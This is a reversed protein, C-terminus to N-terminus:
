AAFRRTVAQELVREIMPMQTESSFCRYAHEYGARGMAARLDGDLALMGIASALADADKPPVLCGTTGDVVVEPIGGVTTAVTPLRAAMAEIISLPLQEELSPLVYIDMASLLEPVNSCHGAWVIRDSVGLDKALVDRVEEAYKSKTQGIALVRVNPSMALIRPLASVLYRVGKRTNVEGVCGVVVNQEDFGFTSRLRQRTEQTAYAYKDLDIFNRVTSIRRASVLNVRRQYEATADSVAIVRDNLMWHPQFKRTHATAVCKIRTALKLLVGFFHASSMHTHIADVRRAKLM